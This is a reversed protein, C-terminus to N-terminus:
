PRAKLPREPRKAPLFFASGLGALLALVSFGAGVMHRGYVREIRFPNPTATAAGRNQGPTPPM